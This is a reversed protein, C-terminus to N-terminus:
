VLGIILIDKAKSNGSFVHGQGGYQLCIASVNATLAIKKKDIKLRKSVVCFIPFLFLDITQSSQMM